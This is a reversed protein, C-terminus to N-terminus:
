LTSSVTITNRYARARARDMPYTNRAMVDALYQRLEIGNWEEPMADLKGEVSRTIGQMLELVFAQKENRTM